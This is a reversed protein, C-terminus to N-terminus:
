PTPEWVADNDDPVRIQDGVEAIVVVYHGLRRLEELCVELVEILVGLV